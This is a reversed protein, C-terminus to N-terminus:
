GGGFATSIIVQVSPFIKKATHLVELGSAGPLKLDTIIIEPLHEKFIELGAKGDDSELVEYGEKGVFRVLQHRTSAVDEIVLVRYKDM